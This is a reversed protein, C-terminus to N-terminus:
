VTAASPPPSGNPIAAGPKPIPPYEPSVLGASLILKAGDEVSMDLDILESSRVFLMFGATPAPTPPLFVTVWEEDGEALRQRIEGKTETAVFVLCWLGPRPFELLATRHFSKGKSSLVTEFLQKLAGYLNRVLPTRGVLQESLGVLTRGVFNATLFGLLTLGVVAVLVGFGPVSFPLYSDPTYERPIVPKVWGDIWKILAWTLYITISIPAAIVLGTLFYNRLRKAFRVRRSEFVPPLQSDDLSM